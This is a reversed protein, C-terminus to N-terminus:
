KRSCFGLSAVRRQIPISLRSPPWFRGAENTSTDPTPATSLVAMGLDSHGIAVPDSVLTNRVEEWGAPLFTVDFAEGGLIRKRVIGAEDYSINVKNGSVREFKPALEGLFLGAAKASIVKIEAGDATAGTALFLGFVFTLLKRM